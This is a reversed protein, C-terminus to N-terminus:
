TSPDLFLAKEAARRATLGASVQGDVHNWLNFQDAALAFRGNNILRLLTSHAESGAGVNYTFSVLADFQNQNVAVDLSNIVAHVANYTDQILWLDAKQDDCTTFETIEPGTHGWGCTWIGRQDQYAQYRLKEFSKILDLGKLGLAMM